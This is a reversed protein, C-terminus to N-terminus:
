RGAAAARERVVDGAPEAPVQEGAAGSLASATQVWKVTLDRNMEAM